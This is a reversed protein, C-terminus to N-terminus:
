LLGDSAPGSPAQADPAPNAVMRPHGDDQPFARGLQPDEVLRQSRGQGPAAADDEDVAVGPDALGAQDAGEQAVRAPAGPQEDPGAVVQERRARQARQAVRGGVGTTRQGRREGPVVPLGHERRDEVHEGARAHQDDLVHVPGVLRRQVHQPVGAPVDRVQGRDEDDGVAVVLDARRM